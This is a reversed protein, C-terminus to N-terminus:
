TETPGAFRESHQWMFGPLQAEFLAFEREDCCGAQHLGLL